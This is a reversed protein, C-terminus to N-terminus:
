FNQDKEYLWIHVKITCIKVLPGTKLAMYDQKRHITIGWCLYDKPEPVLNYMLGQGLTKTRCIDRFNHKPRTTLVCLLKYYIAHLWFLTGACLYGFPTQLLDKLPSIGFYALVTKDVMFSHSSHCLFLKMIKNNNKM